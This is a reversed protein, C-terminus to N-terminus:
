KVEKKGVDVGFHKVFDEKIQEDQSTKPKATLGRIKVKTFNFQVRWYRATAEADKRSRVISKMLDGDANRGTIRYTEYDQKTM